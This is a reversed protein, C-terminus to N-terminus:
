TRKQKNAGKKGRQIAKQVAGVQKGLIAAIIQPSLGIKSLAIELKQTEDGKNLTIVLLASLKASIEALLESQDPM